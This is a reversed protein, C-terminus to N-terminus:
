RSGEYLALWPPRGRDTGSRVPRVRVCRVVAGFTGAQHLVLPLVICWLVYNHICWAVENGETAASKYKGHFYFAVRSALYRGLVQGGLAWLRRGERREASKAPSPWQLRKPTQRPKAETM